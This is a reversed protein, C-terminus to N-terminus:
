DVILFKDSVIKGVVLRCTARFGLDERDPIIFVCTASSNPEVSEFLPIGEHWFDLKGWKGDVLIEIDTHRLVIQGLSNKRGPFYVKELSSNLVEFRVELGDRGTFILKVKDLVNENLDFATLGDRGFSELSKDVTKPSQNDCSAIFGCFIFAIIQKKISRIV